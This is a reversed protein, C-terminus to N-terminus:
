LSGSGPKGPGCADQQIGSRDSGLHNATTARSTDGEGEEGAARSLKWAACEPKGALGRRCVLPRRHEAFSGPSQTSGLSGVLGGSGGYDAVGCLDRWPTQSGWLQLARLAGQSCQEGLQPKTLLLVALVGLHLRCPHFADPVQCYCRASVFHKSQALCRASSQVCM